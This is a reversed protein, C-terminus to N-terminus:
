RNGHIYITHIDIMLIIIVMIMVPLVLIMMIRFVTWIAATQPDTSLPPHCTHIDIMITIIVM